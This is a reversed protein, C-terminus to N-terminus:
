RDAEHAEVYTWALETGEREHVTLIYQGAQELAFTFAFMGERATSISRDAAPGRPPRIKLTLTTDAPFGAGRATTLSGVRGSPASFSREVAAVGSGTGFAGGVLIALALLRPVSARAAPPIRLLLRKM